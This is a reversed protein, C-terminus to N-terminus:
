RGARRRIRWGLPHGHRTRLAGLVLWYLGRCLLALAQWAVVGAFILAGMLLAYRVAFELPGM